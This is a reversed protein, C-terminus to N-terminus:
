AKNMYAKLAKIWKQVPERKIKPYNTQLNIKFNLIQCYFTTLFTITSILINSHEFIHDFLSYLYDIQEIGDTTSAGEILKQCTDVVTRVNSTSTCLKEVFNQSNIGNTYFEEETPTSIDLYEDYIDDDKALISYDTTIIAPQNM